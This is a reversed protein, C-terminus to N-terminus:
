RTVGCIPCFDATLDSNAAGCNECEWAGPAPSGAGGNTIYATSYAQTPPPPRTGRGCAPCVDQWDLNLTGCESCYWTDDPQCYSVFDSLAAYTQSQSQCMASTTTDFKLHSEAPYPLYSDLGTQSHVDHHYRQFKRLLHSRLHSFDASKFSSHYATPKCCLYEASLFQTSFSITIIHQYASSLINSINHITFEELCLFPLKYRSFTFRRFSM